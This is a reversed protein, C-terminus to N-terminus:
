DEGTYPPDGPSRYRHMPSRVADSGYYRGNGELAGFLLHLTAKTGQEPTKMGMQAPTKGQAEAYGKTLDTAIFGPTCANVALEPHERALILTYTNTCAKSLGYANASGLGKAKFAEDGELSKCERMFADLRAWTLSADLFFDQWRSDCAAVYNPGAASTVNVVRGGRPDVLPLFAECVRRPGYTNVALVEELGTAGFGIGANNVLGFLPATEGSFRERVTEAAGRVADDSAVDIGLVDLRSEWQPRVALIEGRAEQGRGVDRSGLLVHTDGHEELIREVTARGIGKNAGTVLIRRQTDSM